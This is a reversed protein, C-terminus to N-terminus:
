SSLPKEGDTELVREGCMLPYLIVCVGRRGGVKGGGGGGRM